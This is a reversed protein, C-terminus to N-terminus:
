LRTVDGKRNIVAEKHRYITKLRLQPSVIGYVYKTTTSTIRTGNRRTILTVKEENHVM